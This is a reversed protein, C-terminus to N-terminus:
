DEFSTSTSKGNILRWGIEEAILDAVESSTIDTTDVVYYDRNKGTIFNGYTKQLREMKRRFDIKLAADVKDSIFANEAYYRPGDRKELRECLEDIDCILLIVLDPMITHNNDHMLMISEPPINLEVSHYVCRSDVYRDCIILNDNYKPRIVYELHHVHDYLFAYLRQLPTHDNMVIWTYDLPERTFIADPFYVELYKTVSSKGVGDVGELTILM